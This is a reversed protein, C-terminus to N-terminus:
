NCKVMCKLRDGSPREVVECDTISVPEKQCVTAAHQSAMPALHKKCDDDDRLKASGCLKGDWVRIEWLGEGMPKQDTGATVCGMMGSTMLAILLGVKKM